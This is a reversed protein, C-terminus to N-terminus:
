SRLTALRPFVRSSVTETGEWAKRSELGVLIPTAALMGHKLANRLSAAKGMATKPGTSKRANDRNADLKNQNM